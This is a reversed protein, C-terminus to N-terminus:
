GSTIPMKADLTPSSLAVLRIATAAKVVEETPEPRMDNAVEM